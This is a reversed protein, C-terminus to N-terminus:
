YKKRELWYFQWSPCMKIVAKPSNIRNGNPKLWRSLPCTIRAAKAVNGSPGILPALAQIKGGIGNGASPRSLTVSKFEGYCVVKKVHADSMQCSRGQRGAPSKPR